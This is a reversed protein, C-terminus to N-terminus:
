KPEFWKGSIGCTCYDPESERHSSCYRHDVRSWQPTTKMCMAFQHRGGLAAWVCWWIWGFVPILLVWYMNDPKCHKCHRCERTLKAM